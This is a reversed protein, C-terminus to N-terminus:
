VDEVIEVDRWEGDGPTPERKIASPYAWWQQLRYGNSAAGVGGGAFPIFIAEVFAADKRDAYATGGGGGSITCEIGSVGAVGVPGVGSAGSVVRVQEKQVKRAIRLYMTPIM